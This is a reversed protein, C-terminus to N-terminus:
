VFFKVQLDDTIRERFVHSRKFFDKAVEVCNYRVSLNYTQVFELLIEAVKAVIEADERCIQRLSILKENDFSRLLTSLLKEFPKAM